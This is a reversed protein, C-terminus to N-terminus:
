YCGGSPYDDRRRKRPSRSSGGSGRSGFCKALQVFEDQWHNLESWATALQDELSRLRARYASIETRLHVNEDNGSGSNLNGSGDGSRRLALTVREVLERLCIRPKDRLTRLVPRLREQIGKMLCGIPIKTDLGGLTAIWWDGGSRNGNRQRKSMDGSDGLVPRGHHSSGELTTKAM